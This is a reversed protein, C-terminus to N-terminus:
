ESCELCRPTLVLLGAVKTISPAACSLRSCAVRVCGGDLHVCRYARHSLWGGIGVRWRWCAGCVWVRLRCILWFSFNCGASEFAFGGSGWRGNCGQEVTWEAGRKAREAFGSDGVAPFVLGARVFVAASVAGPAAKEGDWFFFFFRGEFFRARVPKAASCGPVGLAAAHGCFHGIADSPPPPRSPRTLDLDLTTQDPTQGSSRALVDAPDTTKTKGSEDVYSDTSSFFIDPRHSGGPYPQRRPLRVRVWNKPAPVVGAPFAMRVPVPGM